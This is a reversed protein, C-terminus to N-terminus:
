QPLTQADFIRGFSDLNYAAYLVLRVSGDPNTVPLAFHLTPSKRIARSVTYEGASFQRTQLADQFYKRDGVGYRIPLPQRIGTAIVRGDVDAVGVNISTPSKELLTNLIRSCGVPDKSRIEPIESLANLLNRIGEVQSRHELATSKVSTLLDRKSREICENYQNVIFFVFAVLIPLGSIMMILLIKNRISRTTKDFM